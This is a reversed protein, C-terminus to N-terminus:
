PNTRAAAVALSRSVEDPHRMVQRWTFRLVTWGDLVLRTYRDCDREHADRSAHHEWSDAELVLRRGVDVVDPHVTLCGLDVAVQPAVDLGVDLALARLVSEFPNAALGSAHGAVRRAGAAGKGRVRDAADVLEASTVAGHRLASDAVSLAPAFALRRACDVVTRQPSTVRGGEHSLDAWFVFAGERDPALAKRPVTVWPCTPPAAVEWGHLLAASLHSAVGGLEVARVLARDADGLRYRDRRVRRITGGEVARRLRKRTTLRVLEGSSAVGGLQHLATVADM